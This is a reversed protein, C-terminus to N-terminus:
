QWALVFGQRITISYQYQCSNYHHCSDIWPLSRSIYKHRWFIILMSLFTLILILVADWYVQDSVQSYMIHYIMQFLLPVACLFYWFRKVFQDIILSVTEVKM